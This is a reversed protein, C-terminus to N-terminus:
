HPYADLVKEESFSLSISTNCVNYYVRELHYPMALGKRHNKQLSDFIHRFYVCSQHSVLLKQFLFVLFFQLFQFYKSVSIFVSVLFFLQFIFLFSTELVLIDSYNFHAESGGCVLHRGSVRM